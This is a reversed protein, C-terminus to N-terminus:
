SFVACYEGVQAHDLMSFARTSDFYEINLMHIAGLM